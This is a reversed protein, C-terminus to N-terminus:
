ICQLPRGGIWSDVFWHLGLWYARRGEPSITVLTCTPATIVAALISAMSTASTIVLKIVDHQGELPSWAKTRGARLRTSAGLVPEEGNVSHPWLKVVRVRWGETAEVVGEVVVM